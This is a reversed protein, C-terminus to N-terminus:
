VINTNRLVWGFLFQTMNQLDIVNLKKDHKCGGKYKSDSNLSDTCNLKYWILDAYQFCINRIDFKLFRWLFSRLDKVFVVIHIGYQAPIQNGHCGFPFGEM